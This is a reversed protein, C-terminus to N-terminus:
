SILSLILSVQLINTFKENVVLHHYVYNFIISLFIYKLNIFINNKHLESLNNYAHMFAETKKWQVLCLFICNKIVM